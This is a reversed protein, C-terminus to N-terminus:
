SQTVEKTSLLSQSLGVQEFHRRIAEIHTRAAHWGIGLTKALQNVSNGLSLERCIQQDLEPLSEIATAVDMALVMEHMEYCEDCTKAATELRQQIRTESRRIMALQRDIVSTLATVESAGNSKADDFRFDLLALVVQQQVDDLECKRFGMRRARRCILRVKWPELVGSYDNHWM